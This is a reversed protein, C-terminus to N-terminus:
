SQRAGPENTAPASAPVAARQTALTTVGAVTLDTAFAWFFIGLLDKTTGVFGDEFALWGIAARIAALILTRFVHVAALALLAVGTALGGPGRPVAIEGVHLRGFTRRGRAPLVPDEGVAAAANRAAQAKDGAWLEREAPTVFPELPNGADVAQEAKAKDEAPVHAPVTERLERHLEDVAKVM